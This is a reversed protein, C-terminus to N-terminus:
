AGGQQLVEYEGQGWGHKMIHELGVLAAVRRAARVSKRKSTRQARHKSPYNLALKRWHCYRCPSNMLSSPPDIQPRPLIKGLM